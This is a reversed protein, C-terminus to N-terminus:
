DGHPGVAFLYLFVWLYGLLFVSLCPGLACLWLHQERRYWGALGLPLGSLMLGLTMLLSASILGAPMFYSSSPDHVHMLVDASLAVVYLVPLAVLPLAVSFLGLRGGGPPFVAVRVCGIAFHFRGWTGKVHELEALMARGWEAREAPMSRVAAALITEAADCGRSSRSEWWAVFTISAATLVLPAFVFLLIPLEVLSTM